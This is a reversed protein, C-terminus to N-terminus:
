ESAATGDLVRKWAAARDEPTFSAEREALLRRWREIGEDTVEFGMRLMDARMQDIRARRRVAETVYASVNGVRSLHEAVDDPISIAIKKTV